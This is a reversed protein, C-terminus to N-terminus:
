TNLYDTPTNYHILQLSAYDRYGNKLSLVIKTTYDCVLEKTLVIRVM